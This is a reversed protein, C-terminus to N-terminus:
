ANIIKDSITAGLSQHYKSPRMIEASMGTLIDAKEVIYKHHITCTDAM